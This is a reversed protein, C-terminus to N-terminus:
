RNYTKQGSLTQLYANSSVFSDFYGSGLIAASCAVVALLVAVTRIIFKLGRGTKGEIRVPLEQREPEKEEEVVEPRYHPLLQKPPMRYITHIPINVETDQAIEEMIPEATQEQAEIEPASETEPSGSVAQGVRDFWEKWANQLNNPGQTPEETTEVEPNKVRNIPPLLEVPAAEYRPPERTWDLRHPANKPQIKPKQETEPLGFRHDQIASELVYWSRGVLRAPVRGERCLQGIYDKAYGTMKAAQKSSIYKKDNILIEDM